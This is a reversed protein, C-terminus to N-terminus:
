FWKRKFKRSILYMKKPKELFSSKISSELTNEGKNQMISKVQM